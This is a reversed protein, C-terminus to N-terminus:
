PTAPAAPAPEVPAEAPAPAAAPEAPMTISEYPATPTDNAGFPGPVKNSIPTLSKLYRAIAHADEDTLKSFSESPMTPALKRGDPRVGERIAKVIDDESWTGLGTENDPTLNPGYFFGLGPVHFGINSGALWKAKDPQGMLAGPTHCDACSIVAVLYEGRKVPDEAAKQGCGALLVGAGLTAAAITFIRSNTM